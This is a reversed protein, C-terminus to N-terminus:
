KAAANVRDAAAALVARDGEEYLRRIAIASVRWGEPTRVLRHLYSAGVTWFRTDFWHTARVHSRAVADNGAGEVVINTILHQTADFGPLLGQWQAILADRDSTAVEGGFLNTYNTTIRAAFYSRVRNWERLDAYLGIGAVAEAIATKDEITLAATSQTSLAPLSTAALTAAFVASAVVQRRTVPSM